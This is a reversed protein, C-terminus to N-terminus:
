LLLEVLAFVLAAALAAGIVWGLPSVDLWDDDWDFLPVRRPEPRFDVANVPDKVGWCDACIGGSVTKSVRRCHPCLSVPAEDLAAAARSRRTRVAGL